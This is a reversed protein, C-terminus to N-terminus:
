RIITCLTSLPQILIEQDARIAPLARANVDEQSAFYASITVRSLTTEGVGTGFFIPQTTLPFTFTVNDNEDRTSWILAVEVTTNMHQPTLNFSFRINAFDGVRCETFDYSGNAATYLPADGVVKAASNSTDTFDFLNTVGAPMHLGGFLGKTQDFDPNTEGWYEIDRAAQQTADIGFRMWQGAAAMEATYQVNSGLSNAGSQGTARDTFGGTLEYGGQGLQSVDPEDQLDNGALADSVDIDGLPTWAIHVKGTVTVPSADGGSVLLRIETESAIFALGNVGGSIAEVRGNNDATYPVLDAKSTKGLGVSYGTPVEVSVACSDIRVNQNPFKGIVLSGTGGSMTVTVGDLLLEGRRIATARDQHYVGDGSPRLESGLDVEAGQISLNDFNNYKAM